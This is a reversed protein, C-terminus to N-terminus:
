RRRIARHPSSHRAARHPDATRHSQVRSVGSGRTGGPRSRDHGVRRDRRGAPGRRADPVWGSLPHGQSRRVDLINVRDCGTVRRGRGRRRRRTSGPLQATGAPVLENEMKMAEVVVLPQRASVVDGAQVLVRVVKGPMPAHVRQPGVGARAPKTGRRGAAAASRSPSPVSGVQVLLQGGASATVTVEYSRRRQPGDAVGSDVILSLLWPAHGDIRAADVRYSRGDLTVAFGEGTREVTVHRRRGGADIEYPVSLETRRVAGSRAM